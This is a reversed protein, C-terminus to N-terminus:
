ETATLLGYVTVANRGGVYVRGSAVTPTTFKVALAATDRGGSAQSSNYFETNLNSPDYAHLIAPKTYPYSNDIAWVIGDAIGNASISPTSGSTECSSCAFNNSSKSQPTTSFNETGPAFAWAELPGNDPAMYLMNNYFAFSSHITYGGDKFAQLSSDGPTVYNGMKDRNLLYIIGSKDSAVMLHPIAGSQTPLLTVASAGMDNDVADLQAQDGPTFYDLVAMGSSNARLRLVSDGYDGGKSNEDFTGNGAAGFINGANDSSLGGGSMWIGGREANPTVTWAANQKAINKADYAIVWGHYPGNDGHSAWTIFVSNGSGVSPTPALLLASRQNNLQASFAVTTGGDGLGKVTAQITTPGNLKETGDAINLAHLRQVYKGAKVSKALVYIVGNARNVVPTGIVGIILKSSYTEGAGLLSRRWLYGQAPNSGDADFAYIYDHHTAVVLVNHKRKDAMLYQSLYLPQAYVDGNVPLSFVKGFSAANVNTPTLVAENSQVGSRANDYHWTTVDQADLMLASSLFLLSIRSFIHM